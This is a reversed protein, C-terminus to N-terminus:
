MMENVFDYTQILHSWNSWGSAYRYTYLSGEPVYIVADDPIQNFSEELVPPDIARCYIERLSPCDNFSNSIKQVSESISVTNLSENQSCIDNIEMLSYSDLTISKLSKNNCISYPGIETVRPLEVAELAPCDVLVNEGISIVDRCDVYELKECSVFNYKEIKNISTIFRKLNKCNIIAGWRVSYPLGGVQFVELESAPPVVIIDYCHESPLYECFVVGYQTTFYSGAGSIEKLNVCGGFVCLGITKVSLPLTLSEVGSNSFAWNEIATLQSIAEFEVTKLTPTGLSLNGLTKVTAPVTIHCINTYFFMNSPIEVIPESCYYTVTYKGAKAYVHSGDTGFTGDGYDVSVLNALNGRSIYSNQNDSKTETHVVMFYETRKITKEPVLAVFDSVANFDDKSVTLSASIALEGNFFVAPLEVASAKVSIVSNANDVKCDLIPMNIFSISKTETGVAKMSLVSEWSSEILALAAPSSVVFDIELYGDSLDTYFVRAKGDSYKPVYTLTTYSLNGIVPVELVTGDTMTVILVSGDFDVDLFMSDGKDGKEGPNGQPGSEGQEGKEGTAKGLQKWTAGDDYTVYWYGNEIKLQPTVGDAGDEGPAGDQGDEGDQGDKGNEGDQGDNGDRGAAVVKNGSADLLWEGDIVWYWVGDTDQKVSVIPTHGDKGDTGDQGPAGDEGDEGDTGHYITVSGSKTFTIVYGSGDSLETVSQVYDKGQLASVIAQMAKIDENAKAVKASLDEFATKTPVYIKTVGDALTLILYNPDSTYDVSSFMSDGKEGRDGKDGQEGQEGKDGQPGTDGKDGTAQGVYQWTAGNDLSIYWYGEEIKLQPTAGDQGDSGSVGTPGTARVKNGDEDTLWVGDITWYWMGDEGQLVGVIPTHGDAGREGHYITVSGSQSFTIVYGIEVDGEKIPVISKVFDNKQIAELIATLSEMNTNVEECLEDLRIKLEDVESHLENLEDRYTGLGCATLCIAAWIFLFARKM